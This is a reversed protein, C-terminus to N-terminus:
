HRPTRQNESWRSSPLQRADATLSAVQNRLGETERQLEANTQELRSITADAAPSQQSIQSLQRSPMDRHHSIFLVGAVIAAAAGASAAAFIFRPRPSATSARVEPSFAIGELSARRIFRERAGPDPRSTIM